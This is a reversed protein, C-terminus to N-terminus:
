FISCVHRHIAFWRVRNGDHDSVFIFDGAPSIAVRTPGELTHQGILKAMKGTTTDLVQVAHTQHDAAVLFRDDPTLCFGQIPKFPLPVERVFEGAIGPVLAIPLDVEVVLNPVPDPSIIPDDASRNSGPAHGLGDALAAGQPTGGGADAGAAFNDTPPHAELHIPSSLEEDFSVNLSTDLVPPLNTM